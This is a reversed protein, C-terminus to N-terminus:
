VAELVVSMPRRGQHSTVRFRGQYTFPAAKGASLKANRVFLHIGIGRAEHHILDQGRQSNPDTANQSQWHFHTEDIWHDLYQHQSAKGQKNLTVL